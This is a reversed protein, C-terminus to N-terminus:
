TKGQKVNIIMAVNFMSTSKKGRNRWHKIITSVAKRKKEDYADANDKQQQRLNMKEDLESLM